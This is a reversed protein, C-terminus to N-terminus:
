ASSALNPEVAAATRAHSMLSRIDDCSMLCHGRARLRAVDAASPEGCYTREGRDQDRGEISGRILAGRIADDLLPAAMECLRTFLGFASTRLPIDLCQSSVIRGADFKTVMEHVTVGTREVGDALAHVYTCVGAYAPLLSSHVNLCGITPLALLEKGIRYPCSFSVLVDPAFALLSDRATDRNVNRAQLLPIGLSRCTDRVTLPSDAWRGLLAPLALTGIKYLSYRTGWRRILRIVETMRNGRQRRLGDTIIVLLNWELHYRRLLPALGLNAFYNGNTIIAVRPRHVELHEGSLPSEGM